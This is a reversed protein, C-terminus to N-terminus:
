IFIIALFKFLFTITHCFQFRHIFYLGCFTETRTHVEISIKYFWINCDLTTRPKNHKNDSFSKVNYFDFRSTIVYSIGERVPLVISDDGLFKEFCSFLIIVNSSSLVENCPIRIVFM